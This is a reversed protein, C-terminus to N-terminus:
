AFNLQVERYSWEASPHSFCLDSTYHRQVPFVISTDWGYIGGGWDSCVSTLVHGTFTKAWSIMSQLYQLVANKTHLFAVVAFGSYDDIFILVYHTHARSETPMPGVLDSHVLGLLHTAHKDSSPYPCDHMKGLACGKCPTDLEPLVITPM